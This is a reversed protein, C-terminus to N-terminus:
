IQIRERRVREGNGGEGRERWYERETDEREGREGNIGRERDTEEGREERKGGELVSPRDGVNMKRIIM